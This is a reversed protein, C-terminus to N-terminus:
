APTTEQELLSLVAREAASTMLERLAELHPTILEPSGAGAIGVVHAAIRQQVSFAEDTAADGIVTHLYSLPPVLRGREIFYDYTLQLAAARDGIKATSMAVGLASQDNWSAQRRTKRLVETAAVKDDHYEALHSALRAGHLANQPEYAWADELLKRAGDRDGTEALAMALELMVALSGRDRRPLASLIRASRQPAGNFRLYRCLTVVLDRHADWSAARPLVRLLREEIADIRADDGTELVIFLELVPLAMGDPSQQRIIELEERLGAVDGADILAQLLCLRVPVNDADVSLIARALSELEGLEDQARHCELLSRLAPEYQPDHLVADRAHTTAQAWRGSAREMDSLATLLAPDAPGQEVLATVRALGTDPKGLQSSEISALLLTMDRRQPWLAVGEELLGAAEDNDGIRHLVMAHNYLANASDERPRALEERQAVERALAHEGLALCLETVTSLLFDPLPAQQTCRRLYAAAQADDGTAWAATAVIACCESDGRLIELAALAMSRARTLDRQRYHHLAYAKKYVGSGPDYAVARGLCAEARDAAGVEDFLAGLEFLQPALEERQLKLLAEDSSQQATDGFRQALGVRAADIFDERLRQLDTIALGTERSMAVLSGANLLTSLGLKSREDLSLRRTPDPM